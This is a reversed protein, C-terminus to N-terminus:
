LSYHTRGLVDSPGLKKGDLIEIGPPKLHIDYFSHCQRTYIDQVALLKAGTIYQAM